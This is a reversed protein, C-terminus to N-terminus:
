PGSRDVAFTVSFASENQRRGQPDLLVITVEHTDRAHRSGLDALEAFQYSTATTLYVGHANFWQDDPCGPTSRCVRDRGALSQLDKGPAMPARDVFLAFQSTRDDLGHTAWRIDVPLRQTSYNRPSLIHVRNDQVLNIGHVACSACLTLVVALAATKM